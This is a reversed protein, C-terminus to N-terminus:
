KYELLGMKKLHSEIGWATRDMEEGIQTFTRGSAYMETIKADDDTSWPKGNNPPKEKVSTPKVIGKFYVHLKHIKLWYMKQEDPTLKHFVAELANLHEM